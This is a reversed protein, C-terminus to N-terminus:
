YRQCVFATNGSTSDILIVLFSNHLMKLEENLIEDKLKLTHQSEKTTTTLKTSIHNSKEDVALVLVKKGTLIHHNPLM